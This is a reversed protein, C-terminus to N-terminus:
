HYLGVQIAGQEGVETVRQVGVETVRQWGVETMGKPGQRENRGVRQTMGKPSRTNATKLTLVQRKSRLHFGVEAARKGDVETM